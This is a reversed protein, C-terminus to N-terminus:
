RTKNAKDNSTFNLANINLTVIELNELCSPTYVSSNTDIFSCFFVAYLSARREIYVFVLFDVGIQCIDCRAFYVFYFFLFCFTNFEWATDRVFCRMHYFSLFHDGKWEMCDDGFGPDRLHRVGFIEWIYRPSRSRLRYKLQCGGHVGVSVCCM